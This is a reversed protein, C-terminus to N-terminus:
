LRQDMTSCFGLATKDVNFQIALVAVDRVIKKEGSLNFIMM